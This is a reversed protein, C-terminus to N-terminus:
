LHFVKGKNQAIFSNELHSSHIHIHATSKAVMASYTWVERATRFRLCNHLPWGARVTYSSTKWLKYEKWLINSALFLVGKASEPRGYPQKQPM